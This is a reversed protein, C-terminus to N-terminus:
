SKAGQSEVYDRLGAFPDRTSQPATPAPSNKGAPIGNVAWELIGKVNEPKYGRAAWEVAAGHIKEFTLNNAQITNNVYEWIVSGPFFDTAEAYLKLTPVKRAQSVNMSQFDLAPTGRDKIEKKIREKVGVQGESASPPTTVPQGGVQDSASPYVVLSWEAEGLSDPNTRYFTGRKEAAEAGAKAGNRSLGAADALKNLGMKFGERHFGFTQRIMVLTVRLEAEEMNPIMAFFDNPAQTYNPSEFGSMVRSSRDLTGIKKGTRHLGDGAGQLLGVRRANGAKERWAVIRWGQSDPSVCWHSFDAPGTRILFQVGWQAPPLVIFLDLHIGEILALQKYRPGNKIAALYAKGRFLGGILTELLNVQTGDVGFLDKSAYIQPICVLEIDKPEQKGRRISGAIEIRECAPSLYRIWKDAIAKAEEHKM